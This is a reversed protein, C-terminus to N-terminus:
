LVQASIGRCGTSFVSTSQGGAAWPRGRHLLHGGAARPPGWAPAPPHEFSATVGHLAQAPAPQQCSRHVWPFLLGHQLLNAPLVQSGAPSARQFLRSRFSQVGHFPCIRSYNMFFQLGHSPSMSSFDTSSQRRCSSSWVPALFSLSSSSASSLIHSLSVAIGM